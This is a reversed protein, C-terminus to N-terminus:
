LPRNMTHASKIHAALLLYFHKTGDYPKEFRMIKTVALYRRMMTKKITRKWDSM